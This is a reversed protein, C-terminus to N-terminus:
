ECVRTPLFDVRLVNRREFDSSGLMTDIGLQSPGEQKCPETDLRADVWM